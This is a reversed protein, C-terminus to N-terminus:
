KKESGCQNNKCTPYYDEIQPPTMCDFYMGKLLEKQSKNYNEIETKKNNKNISTFNGCSSELNILYCDDVKQCDIFIKSDKKNFYKLYIHKTSQSNKCCSLNTTKVDSITGIYTTGEPCGYFEEGGQELCENTEIWKETQEQECGPFILNFLLPFIYLYKM